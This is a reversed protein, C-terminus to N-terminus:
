SLLWALVAALAASIGFWLLVRLRFRRPEGPLPGALHVAPLQVPALFAEERPEAASERSTRPMAGVLSEIHCTVEALQLVDGPHLAVRTTVPAGNLLTRNTSKLDELRLDTDRLLLRAHEASIFPNELRIHAHPASGILTARLSIPYSAGPPAAGEGLLGSSANEVRLAYRPLIARAGTV